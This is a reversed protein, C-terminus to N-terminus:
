GNGDLDLEEDDDVEQVAEEYSVDPTFLEPALKKASPDGAAQQSDVHRDADAGTAATSRERRWDLGLLIAGATAVGIAVAALLPSSMFIAVLLVVLGTV